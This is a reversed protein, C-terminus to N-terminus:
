IATDLFDLRFNGEPEGCDPIVGTMGWYKNYLANCPKEGVQQELVVKRIDGAEVPYLTLTHGFPNKPAPDDKVGFESPLYGRERLEDWTILNRDRGSSLYRDVASRVAGIQQVTQNVLQTRKSQEYYRTGLIIIVAIVSLTLMIELLGVGKQQNFRNM